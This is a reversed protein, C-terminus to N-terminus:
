RDAEAAHEAVTKGEDTLGYLRGKKRDESVLLEVIGKDSLESLARSVHAVDHGTGSSIASPTSAGNAALDAAVDVRYGSSVVYSVLDWDVDANSM